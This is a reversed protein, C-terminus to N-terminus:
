RLDFRYHGDFEQNFNGRAHIVVLSDNSTYPTFVDRTGARWAHQHMRHQKPRFRESGAGHQLGLLGGSRVRLGVGSDAYQNGPRVQQDRTNHQPEGRNGHYQYNQQCNM